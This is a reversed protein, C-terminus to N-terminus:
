SYREILSAPDPSVPGLRANLLGAVLGSGASPADDLGFRLVLSPERSTRLREHVGYGRRKRWDPGLAVPLMGSPTAARPWGLMKDAVPTELSPLLHGCGTPRWRVM